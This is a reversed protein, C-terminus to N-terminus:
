CKSKGEYLQELKKRQVQESNKGWYYCKIKVDCRKCISILKERGNTTKLLDMIKKTEEQYKISVRIYRQRQIKILRNLIRDIDNKICSKGWSVPVGRSRYNIPKCEHKPLLVYESAEFGRLLKNKRKCRQTINEHVKTNPVTRVLEGATSWEFLLPNGIKFYGVIKNRLGGKLNIHRTYFVVYKEADSRNLFNNVERCHCGEDYSLTEFKPYKYHGTNHPRCKFFDRHLLDPLFLKCGTPMDPLSNYYFLIWIM